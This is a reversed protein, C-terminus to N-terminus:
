CGGLELVLPISAEPRQPCRGQFSCVWVCFCQCVCNLIFRIQTQLSVQGTQTLPCSCASSEGLVHTQNGSGVDPSEYGGTVAARLSGPSRCGAPVWGCWMCVCVNSNWFSMSLFYQVIAFGFVLAPCVGFEADEHRTDLEKWSQQSFCLEKEQTPHVGQLLKWQCTDWSEPMEFM